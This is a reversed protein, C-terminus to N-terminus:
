SAAPMWKISSPSSGRPRPTTSRFYAARSPSLRAFNEWNIPCTAGRTASAKHPQHCRCSVDGVILYSMYDGLPYGVLADTGLSWNKTSKSATSLTM